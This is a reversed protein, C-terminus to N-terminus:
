KDKKASRIAENTISFLLANLNDLLNDANQRTRPIFSDDKIKTGDINFEEGNVIYTNNKVEEIENCFYSLIDRGNSYM